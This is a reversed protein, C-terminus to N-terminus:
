EISGAWAWRFKSPQTDRKRKEKKGDIIMQM